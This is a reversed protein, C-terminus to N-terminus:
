ISLCVVILFYVAAMTAAAVLVNLIIEKLESM